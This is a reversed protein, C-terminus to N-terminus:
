QILVVSLARAIDRFAQALDAGGDAHIHIGGETSQAVNRMLTQNAGRGFTITHVTQERAVANRVTVEPGPGRNHRGDTMVIVTKAAFTRALPDIELSDSGLQLGDGIATLALPRFNSVANRILNFDPTLEILKLATTSYAVLSIQTAPSTAQVEDLFINVANRLDSLRTGTPTRSGMSGSVDLVLAVDRVSAASIAAETPEFENASFVRAFFLGVAGDPSGNERRGNVSVATLPLQNPVFEFRSGAGLSRVSGLSIDAPDLTLGDGAVTNQNALTLTANVAQAANQTRALAESGARAAADTATRLEARVMHMYAVDVSFVAGVLLIVLVVAVLVLMAGKRRQMEGRKRLSSLTAKYHM